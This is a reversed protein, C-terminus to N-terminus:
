PVIEVSEVNSALNWPGGGPEKAIYAFYFSLGV